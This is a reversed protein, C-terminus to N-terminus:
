SVGPERVSGPSKKLRSVAAIRYAGLAARAAAQDRLQRSSRRIERAAQILAYSENMVRNSSRRAADAMRMLIRCDELIRESDVV